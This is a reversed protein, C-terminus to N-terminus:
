GLHRFNVIGNNDASNEQYGDYIVTTKLLREKLLPRLYNLNAFFDAHWTQASKIEYAEVLIPGTLTIVPLYSFVGSISSALTRSILQKNM